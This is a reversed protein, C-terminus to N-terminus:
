ARSQALLAESREGAGMKALLRAAEAIEREATDEDGALRALEALEIRVLPEEVVAGTQEIVGRAEDLVSEIRARSRLGETAILIHALTVQAPVEHLRLGGQLARDIAQEAATRAQVPDGRALLARALVTLTWPEWQLGTRRERSLALSRRAADVAEAHTGVGLQAVALASYALARSFAGGIREAIAVSRTAEGLGARHEGRYHCLLAAYMHIWGEVELDGQERALEAGYSLAERADDLRGMYTHLYGYDMMITAHPSVMVTGAGLGPDRRAADEAAGLLQLAEALRGRLSLAPVNTIRAVQRVEDDGAQEALVQAQEGLEIFAEADGAFGRIAAYHAVITAAARLEGSREALAKGEEFVAAVEADSSGLRWGFGLICIRSTLGLGTTEATEPLADGLLRVKQWHRLAEGPDNPGAWAAARASWRAAPLTEGASESHHALLAAHEDLRDPYLEATALAVLGHVRARSPRLQSRYAVEQTLPHTFAYETEPYVSREYLFEADTLQALASALEGEDMSVVRRLVPEPFEKGIVAAAHLVMKERESLRDIRASLVAQVTPPIALEDVSRILRYGGREGELSANEVLAQVSQEIFFPNGGTHRMILEALGDLSPDRGLLDELLEAMSESRLPSLPLQQYYSRRMWPAHYEPRFNALLLTRTGSIADVLNELFIESAPDVWQLDELLLVAPARRSRAHSLRKMAALLQRQRAEPDMRPPPREPDPFGLFDFLLPLTGVFEPDLSLLTQEIKARATDAGEQPVIGFYGRLMELVPLLPIAQGHAVAHGEDVQVGRERCREAFEYCLRSKGVGPEGVVGVVQGRGALAHALAADLSAMEEARGVFRSFGRDRAIELPTPMSGLGELAYVRRSGRVGKLEFTGLDRLEFYGGALAATHDSLYVRGPEALAEMRQALGVTHGIATYDMQLDDGVAGMVVEGSNLGIRVAFELEEAERLEDAYRNVEETLELAAFCARRAHDEHSVPAGFLAMAGDGTFKDVTGEWREVVECLLAFFRGMVRHWLEADVREAMGMSDIVDAFLVTVQKREDDQGGSRGGGSDLTASRERRVARVRRTGDGLDDPELAPAALPEAVAAPDAVSRGCSDCFRAAARLETGCESCTRKLPTGCNECFAAQARNDHGCSACHLTM